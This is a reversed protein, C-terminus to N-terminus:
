FAACTAKASTPALGGRSEHARLRRHHPGRRAPRAGAGRRQRDALFDFLAPERIIGAKVIEYLGARYEREPLTDLM